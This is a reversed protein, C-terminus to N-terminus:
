FRGDIIVEFGALSAAGLVHLQKVAVTGTRALTTKDRGSTDPETGVLPLVSQPESLLEAPEGPLVHFAVGLQCVCAHVYCYPDAQPQDLKSGPIWRPFQGLAKGLTEIKRWKAM